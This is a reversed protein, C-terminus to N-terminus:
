RWGRGGVAARPRRSRMPHSAPGGVGFQGGGQTRGSLVSPPRPIGLDILFAFLFQQVAHVQEVHGECAGLFAQVRRHVPVAFLPETRQEAFVETKRRAVGHFLALQLSASGCCRDPRRAATAAEAAREEAPAGCMRMRLSAGSCHSGASGSMKWRTPLATCAIRARTRVGDSRGSATAFPPHWPRWPVSRVRNCSRSAANDGRGRHPREEGLSRPAGFGGDDIRVPVVWRGSGSLGHHLLVGHQVDLGTRGSSSCWRWTAAIDSEAGTPRFAYSLDDARRERLCRSTRRPRMLMSPNLQLSAM